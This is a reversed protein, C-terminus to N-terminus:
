NIIVVKGLSKHSELYEHAKKTDKLSFIKEPKVDIQHRKIHTFLDNLREISINGSYFGTLYGNNTDFIPDFNELYWKGGLQGTSCIIGESNLHAFSNKITAPGILELIKDYRKTTQLEGNKELILSSFGLDLLDKKKSSKRSTGDIKIKPYQGKLLKLFAVGVGSTGGRVLINDNEQVKLREISGYATYYTEPVAALEEWSLETEIPYIQKNPILTYEAYSGDFIRGMEGMFSIVKQGLPLKVNDTTEAIIGVAEIGLIRPFEVSPSLGQRTFIESHNIGFGKIEILSWGPRINPKKVDRYILNEPGGPKYVVVAKM